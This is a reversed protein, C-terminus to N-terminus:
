SRSSTAWAEHEAFHEVLMDIFRRVKAALYRRHPYIAEMSFEVPEYEPLLPVLAGSKVYDATIFSPGLALGGGALAVTRLVDASATVLNGSVRVSAAKGDPGTFHWDDGFPYYAYRLCNHGALDALIKPAEHTELYRPACCLIPRWVCLRRAVLSSDPIRTSWISLDFGEEIIDIMRDSIRLDISAEPYDRLFDAVVSAIFQALHTNCHVRLLGRPTTQQAGAALDAEEIEALIQVCREYYERGIDTLSVKRTTRNLLRVGLASELAQIHNSVMTPSVSLRQAAASFGGQDVVRVFATLSAIRDM